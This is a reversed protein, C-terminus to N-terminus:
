DTSICYIRYILAPACAGFGTSSLFTSGTQIFAGYHHDQGVGAATWDTCNLTVTGTATSGTLVGADTDVIEDGYPDWKPASLLNGHTAVDFFHSPDRAIEVEGLTKSYATIPAESTIRDRADVTSDSAVAVYSRTLGASSAQARCRVDLESLGGLNPAYKLKTTFLRHHWTPVGDSMSQSVEGILSAECSSALICCLVSVLFNPSTM